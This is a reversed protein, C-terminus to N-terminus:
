EGVKLVQETTLELEQLVQSRIRACGKFVAEEYLGNVLTLVMVQAKEPHYILSIAQSISCNFIHNIKWIIGFLKWRKLLEM